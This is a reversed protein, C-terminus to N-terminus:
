EIDPNGGTGMAIFKASILLPIARLGTRSQSTGHACHPSLAPDGWWSPQLAVDVLRQPVLCLCLTWGDWGQWYLALALGAKDVAPLSHLGKPLQALCSM